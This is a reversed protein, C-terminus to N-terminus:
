GEYRFRIAGFQVEDGARLVVEGQLRAGNVFTGNTSGLDKVVVGGASKVVEAHKRSVTSEGVLSLGLGPDRGVILPTDPIPIVDGSSSRLQPSAAVASVGVAGLSVAATGALPDPTADGLMIKQVPQPPAPAQLPVNPVGANLADDPAKPIQIGMQEFTAKAKDPNKKVYMFGAYAVGCIAALTALLVVITGLPNSQIPARGSGTSSAQGPTANSPAAGGTDRTPAVTSNAADGVTDVKDPLAVRFNPATSSATSLDFTQNVPTAMAGNSRYKVSSEIKGAKVIFFSVVGKASPDLLQTQTRNGDKLDVSASAVPKGAYEISLNVAAVNSFDTSKVDWTDEKVDALKKVAVIGAKQDWVVVRENASKQTVALQIPGKASVQPKDPLSTPFGDQMWVAYSKNSDPFSLNLVDEALCTAVAGLLM